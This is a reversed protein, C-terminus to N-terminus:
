VHYKHNHNEDTNKVEGKNLAALYDSATSVVERTYEPISLVDIGDESNSVTSNSREVWTLSFKFPIIFITSGRKRM